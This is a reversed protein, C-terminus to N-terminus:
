EEGPCRPRTDRHSADCWPHRASRGCVCIAVTMRDSTVVRGDPLEVTVPGEVLLPEGPRMRIRCGGAPPT